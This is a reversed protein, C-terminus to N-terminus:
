IVSNRLLVLVNQHFSSNPNAFGSYNPLLVSYYLLLKTGMSKDIKRINM